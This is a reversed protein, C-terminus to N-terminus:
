ATLSALCGIARANSRGLRLYRGLELRGGGVAAWSGEPRKAAVEGRQAYPPIM